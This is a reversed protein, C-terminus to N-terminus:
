RRTALILVLPWTLDRKVGVGGMVKELERYRPELHDYAGEAKKAEFSPVVAEILAQIQSVDWHETWLKMDESEIVTENREDIASTREVDYPCASPVPASMPLHTNWKYRKVDKWLDASLSVNDYWSELTESVAKWAAMAAPPSDKIVAGFTENLLSTLIPQCTPAFKPEAFGPPGYFWIALTGNSRLLQAFAGMARPKDILHMCEGATIFSASGSPGLSAVQEAPCVQWTINNRAEGLNGLRAAAVALHTNNNDSGIVWDFHKSLGAAVQGPGTGVDHAVGKTTSNNHTRHYDLIQHYFEPSYKARTSMYNDWFAEDYAESRFINGDSDSKRLSDNM